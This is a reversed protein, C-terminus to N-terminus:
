TFHLFERGLISAIGMWIKPSIVYFINQAITYGGHFYCRLDRHRHDAHQNGSSHYRNRYNQVM